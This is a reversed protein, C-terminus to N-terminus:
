KVKPHIIPDASAPRRPLTKAILFLKDHPYKAQIRAAAAQEKPDIKGDATMTVTQFRVTEKGNSVTLDVYTAGKTGGGPGPLWEEKGEVGGVINYGAGKMLDAISANQNRTINSGWRGGFGSTYRERFAEAVPNLQSTPWGFAEAEAPSIPRLARRAQRAGYFAEFSEMDGEPDNESGGRSSAGSGGPEQHGDLDVRSLPSNKVYGYLNLSQPDEFKAYPVPEAQISWDPSMFRGMSSAYYRAGFYDLGSETDRERGTFHQETSGLDQGVPMEGFPFETFSKPNQGAFDTELRQTGLWDSIHFRLDSGNVANQQYTAILMGGFANSHDWTIAGTSANVSMETLQQGTADLVYAKLLSFGINQTTDCTVQYQGNALAPNGANDWVVHASGKGVRQGSADYIYITVAPPGGAIPPAAIGCVRGEGDYIYTNTNDATLNGAADYLPAFISGAMNSTLLRNTHNNPSSSSDDFTAFTSTLATAGSAVQCDGGPINVYPSTASSQRLRNGYVDYTWCFSQASGLVPTDTAASLRDLADYKIGTWTGNVSDIYSVINGKKDYGDGETGNPAQIKFSYLTSPATGTQPASITISIAGVANAHNADGPYQAEILHSGAPLSELGASLSASGNPDVAPTGWSVGDVRLFVNGTAGALGSVTCTSSQGVSFSAPSCALALSQAVANVMVATSLAPQYISDGGYKAVFSHTGASLGASSYTVGESSVPFTGILAGNDFLQITGQAFAPKVRTYLSVSAGVAVSSFDSKLAVSAVTSSSPIQVHFEANAYHSTDWVVHSSFEIGDGGPSRRYLLINAGSAKAIVKEQCFLTIKAALASAVSATSSFQGYLVQQEVGNIDVSITGRDPTGLVAVQSDQVVTLTAIPVPASNQSHAMQIGALFLAIPLSRGLASRVPSDWFWETM